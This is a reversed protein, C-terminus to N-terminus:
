KREARILIKMLKQNGYYQLAGYAISLLRQPFIINNNDDNNDDDDNNNNNSNFKPWFRCSRFGVTYKGVGQPQYGVQKAIKERLDLNAYANIAEMHTRASDAMKAHSQPKANMLIQGLYFVQLLPSCPLFNEKQDYRTRTM